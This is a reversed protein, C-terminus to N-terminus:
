PLLNIGQVQDWTDTDAFYMFDIYDNAGLSKNTGSALRVKSGAVGANFQVVSAGINHLRLVQGDVVGTVSIYPTVSAGSFVTSASPTITLFSGLSPDIITTSNNAGDNGIAQTGRTYRVVTGSDAELATLRSLISALEDVTMVTGSGSVTVDGYDGDALEASAGPAGDAGAPGQLGQIGQAGTDGTVDEVSKKILRRIEDLACDVKPDGVRIV